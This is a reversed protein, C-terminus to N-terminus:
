EGKYLVIDKSLINTSEILRIMESCYGQEDIMKSKKAWSTIEEYGVDKVYDEGRLKMGWAAVSAAFLFSRSLDEDNCLVNKVPLVMLNSKMEDPLKYRLKITLLEDSFDKSKLSLKERTEKQYKLPDTGFLYMEVDDAGNPIIEYLATVTHGSGIEGADIKDNNFDEKKLLRNEYGILRYGAVHQPNFELQFKVDKAITYLTGGFEEIMAKKAELFNDIYFYNGNGKDALIEMKSDKYNGMGFGAVTLYVGNDRESEILREMEQNSSLGVNFDGDSALIIRNNGKKIFNQKALKYALKLGAGGATSGGASLRDLAEIIKIKNNGSTPELVVGAAGAYVVISVKDESRLENVLLKLASKLLPLKNSSNMSGSVDLLFVLNSPPLNQKKIKKGKLAVKMLYHKKNWPCVAVEHYVTFPHHSSPGEYDYNFYNIMEEIRVADKPPLTGNNLFRRINAYSARDVDVSFTSLPDNKPNLFVNENISAYDEQMLPSSSYNFQPNKGPLAVSNVAGTVISRKQTGYGIVVCEELELDDEVMVVDDIRSIDLELFVDINSQTKIRVVKTKMGVFSFVLYTASDSVKLIYQGNVGTITVNNTGKEVVTVGPLVQKNKDFVKGTIEKSAFINRVDVICIIAILLILLKRKM